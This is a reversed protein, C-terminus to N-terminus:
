YTRLRVTGVDAAVRLEIDSGGGQLSYGGRTRVFGESADVRRLGARVMVIVDADHPVHVEIAGVQARITVNASEDALYVVQRGMETAADLSHVRTGRLDLNTDAIETRVQLSVPVDRALALNWQPGRGHMHIGPRQVTRLAVRLDDGPEVERELRERGGVEVEGALLASVDSPDLAAVDLRGVPASLAITAGPAEGRPVDVAEIRSAGGGGAFAVIGAALFLVILVATLVLLHPKM